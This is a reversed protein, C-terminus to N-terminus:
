SLVYKFCVELVKEVKTKLNSELVSKDEKVQLMVICLECVQLSPRTKTHSVQNCEQM